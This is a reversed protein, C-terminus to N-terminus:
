PTVKPHRLDQPETAYFILAAAPLAFGIWSVLPWGGRAVAVSAVASGVGGGVFFIAM